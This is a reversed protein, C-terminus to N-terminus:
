NAKAAKERRYVAVTYDIIQDLLAEGAAMQPDAGQTRAILSIALTQIAYAHKGRGERHHENGQSEFTRLLTDYTQPQMGRKAASWNVAKLDDSLDAALSGLLWMAENDKSGNEQLDKLVAAFRQKFKQEKTM